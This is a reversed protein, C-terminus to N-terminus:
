EGIASSGGGTGGSGGSSGGSSSGGGCPDTPEEYDSPVCYVHNNWKLGAKYRSVIGDVDVDDDLTELYAWRRTKSCADPAKNDYDIPIHLRNIVSGYVAKGSCCMTSAMKLVTEKKIYGTTPDIESEKIEQGNFYAGESSVYRNTYVSLDTFDELCCRAVGDVSNVTGTCCSSAPTTQDVEFGTPVCCNFENESFVKKLKGSGIEFNDYSAASYYQTGGYTADVVGTTNVDKITNDLPLKLAKIDEQDENLPKEVDNNTEILVQPIGLLEFKGFWNLYKLEEDSGEAINKVECDTTVYDNLNCTYQMVLPNYDPIVNAAPVKNPNWSLPRFTELSINQQTSATFKNGGNNANSGTAFKRVWHGTCCMRQNHLHLTNYKKINNDTLALPSSPQPAASIMAPYRSPEDILKDYVTHTRSYRTPDNYNLNVGPLLPNGVANVVKFSSNEHPQSYYTFEKGTERCCHNEYTEYLPNPYISNTQYRQQSNGCVLEEEWFKEEAESIEGNFNSVSKFKTSIFNNPACEFDSFCKAGPARLCTNKHYGMKTVQTDEDNFLNANSLSDLILSNTSLNARNAYQNHKSSPLSIDQFHTYEGEADTAPCAAFYNQDKIITSSMTRGVNNIKDAERPSINTFNMNETSTINDADKGPVCLGKIKTSNFHNKISTVISENGYYNYPRGLNRAGLGFTDTKDSIFSQINQGAPSEAYRSIKNNFESETVGACFSNHSCTHLAVNNSNTYSDSSDVNFNNKECIAGVGRYVCRKAQGNSGGLLSLLSVQRSGSVEKGNTDFTPWPTTLNSVNQCTYDYGMQAICDNDTQCFHARQCEAGDSDSDHTILSGSNLIANMENIKVEYTNSITLDGFYANIALYLKNSEAKIRRQNGIAFWKVGDFSGILSAYDFGYWDKNYGNAFLFHQAKLRNQRQLNVDPNVVHTWPIMTAPVFCARGFRLDDARYDGQNTRRRSEVLDPTYGAGHEQFINPFVRQLGSFYDVGCNLCSSFAGSDVFIDYSTGKKVNVVKPPLPSSADINMSGYIENFGVHTDVNNPKLYNGDTYEFATGEQANNSPVDGLDYNLGNIDYFKQPVSKASVYVTEQLPADPDNRSPYVCSYSTIKDEGNSNTIVPKLSCPDENPDCKCHEDIKAQAKEKSLTLKDVNASVFYTITIEQNDYVPFRLADFLVSKGSLSWTDSGEPIISGGVDVIVNFGVDAYSPLKFEQNGSQHDSSRGPNSAQGQVYFKKCRALSSGLKECTGDIKYKVSMTDNVANVPLARNISASQAATLSDNNGGIAVGSYPAVYTDTSYFREKFITEGAYTIEVINNPNTSPVISSFNIDDTEAKFTHASGNMLSSANTYNNTCIAFEDVLPTTCNYLDTLETFLDTADQIPDNPENPDTNDNDDSPILNPCVYFIDEYDKLLEPRTQLLELAILYKDSTTDVESRVNGHNVCQGALCCNFGIASCNANTSCVPSTETSSGINPIRNLNLFNINADTKLIGEYTYLNLGTSSINGNCNPCVEELSFSASQQSFDSDVKSLLSTSLCDNQNITKNNPEVQLFYEKGGISANLYSRIRASAILIPKAGSGTLGKFEVVLCYNTQSSITQTKLFSMLQNGRILFSDNFNSFVNITTTSQESGLQLFNTQQPLTGTQIEEGTTNDTSGSGTNNNETVPISQRVQENSLCGTLILIGLINFLFIKLQKFIRM